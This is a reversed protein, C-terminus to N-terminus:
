CVSDCNISAAIVCKVSFWIHLHTQQLKRLCIKVHAIRPLVIRPFISRCMLHINAWQEPHLRWRSWLILFPFLGLEESRPTHCAPM